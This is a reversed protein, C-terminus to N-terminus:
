RRSTTTGRGRRGRSWRCTGEIWSAISTWGRRRGRGGRRGRRRRGGRRDGMEMTGGQRLRPRGSPHMRMTTTELSSSRSSSTGRESGRVRPRAPASPSRPCRRSYLQSPRPVRLCNLHSPVKPYRLLRTLSPNPRRSTSTGSRELDLRHLATCRHASTTSSSNFTRRLLHPPPILLDITPTATTTTRQQDELYGVRRQDPRYRRGEREEGRHSWQGQLLCRRGLRTLECRRIWGRDREESLVGIGSGRIGMVAGRAGARSPGEAKVIARSLTGLSRGRERGGDTTRQTALTVLHRGRLGRYLGVERHLGLDLALLLGRAIHPRPDIERLLQPSAPAPPVAADVPNPPESAQFTTKQLSAVTPGVPLLPLPLGAPPPNRKPNLVIQPNPVPMRTKNVVAGLRILVNV